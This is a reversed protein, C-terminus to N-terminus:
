IDDKEPSMLENHFQEINDVKEPQVNPNGFLLDKEKNQSHTTKISYSAQLPFNESPSEVPLNPIESTKNEQLPWNESQKDGKSKASETTGKRKLIFNDGQKENQVKPTIKGDLLFRESSANPQQYLMETTKTKHLPFNESPTEGVVKPSEFTKKRQLPSIEFGRDGQIPAEELSKDPKLTPTEGTKTRQIPFSDIPREGQLVPDDNRIFKIQRDREMEGALGEGERGDISAAEEDGAEEEVEQEEEGELEQIVQELQKKKKDLLKKMFLYTTIIGVALGIIICAAVLVGVETETIPGSRGRDLPGLIGNLAGNPECYKLDQNYAYGFKCVACIPSPCKACNEICPVCVLSDNMWYGDLCGLCVMGLIPGDDFCQSCGDMCPTCGVREKMYQAPPCNQLMRRSGAYSRSASLQSTSSGLLLSCALAFLVMMIM